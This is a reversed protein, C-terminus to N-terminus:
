LDAKTPEEGKMYGIRLTITVDYAVARSYNGTHKTKSDKFGMATILGLYRFIRYDITTTGGRRRLLELYYKKAIASTTRDYVNTGASHESGPEVTNAYGRRCDQLANGSKTAYYILEDDIQIIGDTTPFTSADGLNITTSVVSTLNTITDVNTDDRISGQITIQHNVNVLDVIRTISGYKYNNKSRPRNIIVNGSSSDFDDNVTVTDIEVSITDGDFYTGSYYDNDYKKSLTITDSM